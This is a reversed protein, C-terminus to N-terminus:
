SNKEPKEPPASIPYEGTFCAKCIKCGAEELIRSLSEHPLFAVSDAGLVREHIMANLSRDSPIACKTSIKDSGSDSTSVITDELSVGVVAGPMVTCIDFIHDMEAQSLPPIKGRRAADAVGAAIDERIEAETMYTISGDGMRTFYKKDSM